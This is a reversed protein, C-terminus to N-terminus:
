IVGFKSNAKFLLIYMNQYLNIPKCCAVSVACSVFYQGPKKQFWTKHELMITFAVQRQEAQTLSCVLTFENDGCVMLVIFKYLFSTLTAM